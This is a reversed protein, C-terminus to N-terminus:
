RKNLIAEKNTLTEWRKVIVDCYKPDLEMTYCCRNLQEAAIITSGSGGFLDLIIDNEKSSNKILKAILDIPKMTPHLTSQKPRDFELITSQTRDNIFYHAKGEKWGYLVPEHQWQYDQRGMVFCDKKWILCEALKFGADKFAKRFNIGETDAHFVYISAGEKTVIYMNEFVKRLFEYFQNDDMNDNKIKLAEATKGVYDVNYPPDTLLMDADQNNMLRMIDDKHTSDGCMLRHNGLIWIDGPKTIPEEIEEYTSDVDFNDEKTGNIDNLIEDVEDFDFGTLNMDFEELKLEQLLAELKDEDWDGQIKNLAINLAKENTKDLDVVICEVETIGLDKLVKLRQHGGIVTMDKNIVLPSVFGFKVISNKIKIYEADDPKLDKRPNYTAPILKNIDIIQINM